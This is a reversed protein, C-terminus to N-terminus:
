WKSRQSITTSSLLYRCFSSHYIRTLCDQRVMNHEEYGGQGRSFLLTKGWQHIQHFLRHGIVFMIWFPLRDISKIGWVIPHLQNATTVLALKKPRYRRELWKKNTSRWVQSLRSDSSFARWIRARSLGFLDETLTPSSWDDTSLRQYM